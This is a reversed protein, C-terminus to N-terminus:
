PYGIKQCVGHVSCYMPRELFPTYQHVSQLFELLCVNQYVWKIEIVTFGMVRGSSCSQLSESCLLCNQMNIITPDHILVHLLPLLTLSSWLVKNCRNAVHLRACSFRRLASSSLFCFSTMSHLLVFKSKVTLPHWPKQPNEDDCKFGLLRMLFRLKWGTMIKWAFM